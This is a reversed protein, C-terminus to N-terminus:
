REERGRGKRGEGVCSTVAVSAGISPGKLIRM